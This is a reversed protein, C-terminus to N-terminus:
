AADEAKTKNVRDAPHNAPSYITYLKLVSSGNNVFNHATGAPVYSLDGAIIKFEEGGIIAHGEGEVFVLIQDIDNHTEMGIDEGPLLSMLVVQM